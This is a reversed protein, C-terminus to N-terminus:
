VRQRKLLFDQEISKANNEADLMASSGHLDRQIQMSLGMAKVTDPHSAGFSNYLIQYARQAIPNALLFAEATAAIVAINSLTHALSPHMPGLAREKVELARVLLPLAERTVGKQLLTGALNGIARGHWLEQADPAADYIAVAHRQLEEALDLRGTGKHALALADLGEAYKPSHAGFCNERLTQVHGAMALAASSEGNLLLMRIHGDAIEIFEPSSAGYVSKAKEAAREFAQIGDKLRGQHQLVIALTHTAEIFDKDATSHRESLDAARQLCDEAAPLNGNSQHFQGLFLLTQVLRVDKDGYLKLQVALARSLMPEAANMAHLAVATKGVRLYIGATQETEPGQYATASEVAVALHSLADNGANSLAQISSLEAQLLQQDLVFEVREGNTEIMTMLIPTTEAAAIKSKQRLLLRLRNMIDM